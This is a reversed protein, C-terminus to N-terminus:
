SPDAPPSAMPEPRALAALVRDTWDAFLPLRVAIGHSAQWLCVGWVILGAILVGDALRQLVFFGAASVLLTVFSAAWCTMWALWITGFAVVAQMAHFRVAPRDREVLYVIAGSVWWAAYAAASAVRPDPGLPRADEGM